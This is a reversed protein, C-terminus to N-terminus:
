RQRHHRRRRHLRHRLAEPRGANDDASIEASVSFLWSWLVVGCCSGCWWLQQFCSCSCYGCCSSSSSCCRSCRGCGAAVVVVVVVVVLLLLLWLLWSLLSVMLLSMVVVLLWCWSSDSPEVQMTMLGGESIKVDQCVNTGASGANPELNLRDGAALSSNKCTSGGGGTHSPPPSWCPTIGSTIQAWFCQKTTNPPSGDHSRWGPGRLRAM